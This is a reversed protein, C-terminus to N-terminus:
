RSARKLARSLDGADGLEVRPLELWRALRALEGALAAAVRSRDIGSEGHSALVHLCGAARDAKLDVRAVLRDGVLLPLVYYGHVRKPAPVYIELRLRMGFLRETRDRTWVLSDFPSLLVAHDDDGTSAHAERHQYAPLRWGEVKTPLLLGSEVLAAIAPRVVAPKLRFYDRLDAETAVGLARAALDVLERQAESPSVSIELFKSPIVRHPLDYMREFGRRAASTVQGSWFLWEMARKADSWGWWGSKRKKGLGIESAAIPGKDAVIALVEAVFAKRASMRRVNHWAHHKAADMRWRMLPWLEVPMLSAEHGWYEFLVRPAHHGLRDLLARDYAGLRSFAPLYHSRVLVNVSDIQIAGLRRALERVAPRDVAAPRPRGLGQAALAIRRAEGASLVAGNTAARMTHYYAAM